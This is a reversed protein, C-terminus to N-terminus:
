DEHSRVIKIIKNVTRKMHVEIRENVDKQTLYNGSRVCIYSYHNGHMFVSTELFANKPYRAHARILKEIQKNM